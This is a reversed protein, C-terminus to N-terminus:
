FPVDDDEFPSGDSNLWKAHGEKVLMEKTWGDALLKNLDWNPNNLVFKPEAPTAPPVSPTQQPNLPAPGSTPAPAPAPADTIPAPAATTKDDAWKAKGHAVLQEDTWNKSYQEYTFDTAIMVLKRKTENNSNSNNNNDNDSEAFVGGNLKHAKGEASNKIKEKIFNPLTKFNESEFSQSMAFVFIDNHREVEQNEELSFMRRTQADLKSLSDINSYTKQGDKSKSHKMKAVFSQGLLSCIDFDEAEKDSMSGVVGEIMKRLNAKSNLSNNEEVYAVSPKLDDGEYFQRLQQPFEFMLAIKNKPGFNGGEQTGIQAIGYLTCLNYGEPILEVDLKKSDGGSVPATMKPMQINSM